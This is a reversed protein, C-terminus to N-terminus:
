LIDDQLWNILRDAQYSWTKKKLLFDKIKMSNQGIRNDPWHLVNEITKALCDETEEKLVELVDRYEPSLGSTWTSIVPKGYSLYELIKSPFNMNNGPVRSPRPNVLVSAQRCMKQLQSEPVLGFFRIRSDQKLAAKLDSSSGHGCIWLEINTDRIQEFAKLLFSVGGWVSMMGTYLVIKKNESGKNSQTEPNFRLLSIGGDLHLKKPFPCNQFAHYSLFVHGKAMDAGSPYRAWNPGPDYQDACIDIWPVHYNKQAYLGATISEPNPNYSFVALPNGRKECIECIAKIYVRRLSAVRLLPINWYHVFRSDFGPDLDGFSGPNYKGRPWIPEPLHSILVISFGQESLAKILGAQWRNAAPSTAPHKVLSDESFIGGLWLLWKAM